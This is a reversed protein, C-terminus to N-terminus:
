SNKVDFYVLIVNKTIVRYVQSLGVRTGAKKISRYIKELVNDYLYVRTFSVINECCTYQNQLLNIKAM